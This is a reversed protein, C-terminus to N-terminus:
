EKRLFHKSIESRDPDDLMSIDIVTGNTKDVSLFVPFQEENELGLNVQFVFRSKLNAAKLIESQEYISVIKTKAEKLNLM